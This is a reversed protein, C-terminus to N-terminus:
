LVPDGSERPFVPRRWHADREDVDRLFGVVEIRLERRERIELREAEVLALLDNAEARDALDAPMEFGDRAGSNLDIRDRDDAGEGDGSPADVALRALEEEVANAGAQLSRALDVAECQLQMAGTRGLANVVDLAFLGREAALHEPRIYRDNEAEIVVAIDRIEHHARDIGDDGM